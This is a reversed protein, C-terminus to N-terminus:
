LKGGNIGVIQYGEESWCSKMVNIILRRFNFPFPSNSNDKAYFVFDFKNHNNKLVFKNKNQRLIFEKM